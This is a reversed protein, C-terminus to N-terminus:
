KNEIQLFVESKYKDPISIGYQIQNIQDIKTLSKIYSKLCNFYATHYLIHNNANSIILALDSRDYYKFLEDKSHFPINVQEQSSLQYQINQLNLQDEITLDFHYIKNDTLRIDIGNIIHENCAKKMENVKCKKAFEVTSTDIFESQSSQIDDADSIETKQQLLNNQIYQYERNGIMILNVFPYTSENPDISYILGNFAIGFAFKVNKCYQIGSHDENYQMYRLDKDTSVGIINNDKDVLKYRVM